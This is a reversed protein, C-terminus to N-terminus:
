VTSCCTVRRGPCRYDTNIKKALIDAFLECGEKTFHLSDIFHRDSMELSDRVDLFEAADHGELAERIRSYVPEIARAYAAGQQKEVSRVIEPVYLLRCGISRCLDALLRIRFIIGGSQAEDFRGFGEASRIPDPYYLRRFGLRRLRQIELMKFLEVGLLFRPWRPALLDSYQAIANQYDPYIAGERRPSNYLFALDNRANYFVTLHPRIAPLWGAAQIVSQLTGYGGIGLNIVLAGGSGVRSGLLSPWTDQYREIYSCYTTSEGLCVIRYTDPHERIASLMSDYAGTKRFGEVTHEIAGAKGRHQPNLSWNAYPHPALVLGPGIGAQRSVSFPVIRGRFSRLRELSLRMNGLGKVSLMARPAVWLFAAAMVAILFTAVIM